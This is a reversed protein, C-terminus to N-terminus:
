DWPRATLELTARIGPRGSSRVPVAFILTGDGSGPDIRAAKHPTPNRAFANVGYRVEWSQGAARPPVAGLLITERYLDSGEIHDHGWLRGEVEYEPVKVALDIAFVLPGGRRTRNRRALYISFLHPHRAEAGFLEAYRRFIASHETTTRRHLDFHAGRPRVVTEFHYSARVEQGGDLADQVRRPLSLEDVKLRGDVRVDGFLFRTLNQYGEESNVIGYDGSHSRHVFARPTGRVSANDIRVLGDSIEGVVRSSWGSAVGYDRANTGVLSFFRTCDFKGNLSDVREATDPLALYEKMRDRNFNDANNSTFFGPLNGIVKVDIGNHPTAYTFVKDVCAKNEARGIRPNQLLARCILGGMSHAVLFVRFEATPLGGRDCVQRRVREILADLGQAYVEIDSRVGAGLDQSVQDYYRYIVVSKQPLPQDEALVAGHAYVDRYGYDKMLRVLPSEFVQRVIEGNWRQRSKTAGLNFGMYPTAVTEEVASESGAYGRVYIIPHFRNATSM